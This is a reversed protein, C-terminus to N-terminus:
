RHVHTITESQWLVIVIMDYCKFWGNVVALDCHLHQKVDAFIRNIVTLHVSIVM